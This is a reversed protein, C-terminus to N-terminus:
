LKPAEVVVQPNCYMLPLVEEIPTGSTEYFGTGFPAIGSCFHKKQATCVDACMLSCATWLAVGTLGDKPEIFVSGSCKLACPTKLTVIAPFENNTDM